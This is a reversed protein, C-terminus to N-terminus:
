GTGIRRRVAEGFTRAQDADAFCRKPIIMSTDNVSVVFFHTRTDGLRKVFPWAYTATGGANREAIGEDSLSFVHDGCIRHRRSLLRGAVYLVCLAVINLALWLGLHAVLLQMRFAFPMGATAALSSWVIFGALVLAVVLLGRNHRLSNLRAAEYDSEVIQAHLEMNDGTRDVQM